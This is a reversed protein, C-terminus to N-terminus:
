VSIHQLVRRPTPPAGSGTPARTPRGAAIIEIFGRRFVDFTYTTSTATSRSSNFQSSSSEVPRQQDANIPHRHDASGGFPRGAEVVKTLPM